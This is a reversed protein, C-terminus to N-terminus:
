DLAQMGGRLAANEARLKAIEADRESVAGRLRANEELLEEASPTGAPLPVRTESAKASPGERPTESPPLLPSSPAPPERAEIQAALATLHAKIQQFKPDDPDYHYGVRPIFRDFASQLSHGAYSGCGPPLRKDERAFLLADAALSLLWDSVAEKDLWSPHSSLVAHTRQENVTEAANILQKAAFWWQVGEPGTNFESSHSYWSWRCSEPTLSVVIAAGVLLAAAGGAFLQRATATDMTVDDSGDFTGMVFYAVAAFSALRYAIFGAYWTGGLGSFSYRLAAWPAM